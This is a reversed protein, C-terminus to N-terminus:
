NRNKHLENQYVTLKELIEFEDYGESKLKELYVDLLKQEDQSTIESAEKKYEKYDSYFENQEDLKEVIEKESLNKESIIEIGNRINAKVEEENESNIIAYKKVTDIGKEELKKMIEIDNYGVQRKLELADVATMEGDEVTRDTTFKTILYDIFTNEKNNAIKDSLVLRDYIIKEQKNLYSYKKYEREDGFYKRLFTELKEPALNTIDETIGEYIRNYVSSIPSGGRKSYVVDIPIAAELGDQLIGLISDTNGDLASKFQAEMKEDESSGLVKAERYKGSLSAVALLTIGPVGVSTLDKINRGMAEFNYFLMQFIYEYFM